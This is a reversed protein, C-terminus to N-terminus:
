LRQKNNRKSLLVFPTQKPTVQNLTTWMFYKQQKILLDARQASDDILKLEVRLCACTIGGVVFRQVSWVLKMIVSNRRQM